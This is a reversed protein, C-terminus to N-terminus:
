DTHFHVLAAGGSLKWQEVVRGSLWGTSRASVGSVLFYKIEYEDLIKKRDPWSMSASLLAQMDRKRQPHASAGPSSRDPALIFHDSLTVILRGMRGDALVVEKPPIAEQLLERARRMNEIQEHREARPSKAQQWYASWSYDASPNSIQTAFLVAVLSLLGRKWWTNIQERLLFIVGGVVMMWLCISLIGGIRGFIWKKGLLKLTFTCLPPFYLIAAVTAWVCLLKLGDSRREGALTTLAGLLVLALMLAPRGGMMREPKLMVMGNSFTHYKEEQGEDPDKETAVHQTSSPERLESSPGKVYKAVLAFPMGLALAAMAMAIFRWHLQRKVTKWGLAILLLPGVALCVFGAYLGHFQGLVFTGAALRIVAIISDPNRCLQIAFAIVLPVMIKMSSQNPYVVFPITSSLFLFFLGVVWGTWRHGFVTWALYFSAAVIMLKTWIWSTAWVGLFDVFTLQSCSAQLAHMLNTHYTAFFGPVEIFPDQNSFGNALLFRIRALHIQADGKLFAGTRGAMVMEFVVFAFEVCLFGPLLKKLDPWFQWRTAQVVSGIVLIVCAISFVAVPLHLVYCLISIPSLVAVSAVFGVAIVALPGGEFTDPAWRRVMVAGAFTLSLWFLVTIWM